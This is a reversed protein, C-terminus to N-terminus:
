NKRKKTSLKFVKQLIDETGSHSNDYIFNFVHTLLIVELNIWYRNKGGKSSPDHITILEDQCYDNIERISTEIQKRSIGTFKMFDPYSISAPEGKFHCRFLLYEILVRQEVTLKANYAGFNKFYISFITNEKAMIFFFTRMNVSIGIQECNSFLSKKAGDSKFSNPLPM